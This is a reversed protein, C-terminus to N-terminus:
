EANGGEPVSERDSVSAPAPQSFGLKEMFDPEGSCALFEQFSHNFKARVEVPLEMFQSEMEHMHNLAEAYTKPFDLVDGYFGQRSSLASVDGNLFRKMLVHIDCSEVHSQIFDYINEQGTERLVVRGKEDYYGGYTKHIPSGPCTTFRGRRDYQTMFAM